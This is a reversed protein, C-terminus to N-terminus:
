RNGSDQGAESSPDLNQTLIVPWQVWSLLDQSSPNPLMAGPLNDGLKTFRLYTQGM